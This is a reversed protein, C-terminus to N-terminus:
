YDFINGGVQITQSPQEGKYPKRIEILNLVSYGKSRLFAIMGDNNPHVYNYATDEGLSQALAEAEDFLLSAAGRRRYGGDVYLQEVWLVGGDVRCVIYGVLRGDEEAAYVPYGATLFDLIEERGADVDPASSIGKYKRLEVRFDAVLPALREAAAKDARVLKM